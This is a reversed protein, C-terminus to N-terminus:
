RGKRLYVAGYPTRLDISAGGGGITGVVTEHFQRERSRDTDVALDFDTLLEGYDTSLKVDAATAAPLTLDVTGYNSYLELGRKSSFKQIVVDITGYTSTVKKLRPVGEVQISGYETDVVVEVGTPVELRLESKVEPQKKQKGDVIEMRGYSDGIDKRLSRITPKLEEVHLMNDLRKVNLKGLEPREKGDVLIQHEIRVADTGGSTVFVRSLPAYVRLVSAGDLPANRVASSQAALTSLSCSALILFLFRM